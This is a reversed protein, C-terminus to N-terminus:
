MGPVVELLLCTFFAAALADCAFIAWFLAPSETQEVLGLFPMHIKRTTLFWGLSCWLLVPLVAKAFFM